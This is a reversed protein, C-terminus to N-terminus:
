RFAPEASAGERCPPPPTWEWTVSRLPRSGGDDVDCTFNRLLHKLLTGWKANPDGRKARLPRLEHEAVPFFEVRGEALADRQWERLTDM